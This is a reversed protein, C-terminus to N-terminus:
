ANRAAALRGTTREVIRQVADRGREFAQSYLERREARTLKSGFRFYRELSKGVVYTGAFSTLGKAALGGGAPIKGALERAIARWGFAAAVISGIQGKQELYGVSRDSSAGILFAMRVQNMTLFATDSAFEGVAWPVTVISPVINPVATAVTFMANEKSVKWILREIVEERFAPFWRALPIWADEHEDLIAKVATEPRSPDFPYFHAPHPVASEALGVTCRGFDDESAIRTISLGIERSRAESLDSPILFSFIEAAVADDAALVGFSVRHEALSEVESPNLSRFASSIEKLIPLSM